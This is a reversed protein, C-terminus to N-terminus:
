LLDIPDIMLEMRDYPECFVLGNFDQYLVSLGEFLVSLHNVEVEDIMMLIKSIKVLGKIDEVVEEM